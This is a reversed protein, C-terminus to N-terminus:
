LSSKVIQQTADCLNWCMWESFEDKSLDWIGKLAWQLWAGHVKPIVVETHRLLAAWLSIGNSADGGIHFFTLVKRCQARAHFMLITWIRPNIPAMPKKKVSPGDLVGTPIQGFIWCSPGGSTFRVLIQVLVSPGGPSPAARFAHHSLHGGWFSQDQQNFAWPRFGFFCWFFRVGTSTSMKKPECGTVGLIYVLM